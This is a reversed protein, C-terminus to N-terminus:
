NQEKENLSNLYQELAYEDPYLVKRAKSGEFPGVIGTAELQDIIRGARNYGISLKRQILSTSGQQHRVVLRAADEFNEDLKENPDVKATESDETDPEPLILASPYGQQSGIYETIDEIEPTDVFACQARVLNQGDNILMDGRGILQNAGTSDLITRSDISSSVRFSIRAPFNAKITGTIVNTSPRQTAIILHIGIARALQALRAIPGEIEKGATQILDAFEDVIVVIYPLYHHGKEPNLKRTIYKKNYEKINRAGAKKLLDYRMDMEKTLSNLTHIVKQTDTIIPEEEDPLKALFHRELKSYFSLEIKKPDVMVFKLQAPHKKYLLSTIIANLGVSKGQGTAGAILLHPMKALNFIMPDNNIKKGIVVPLEYKTNLYEPSTLVSRMSVIEPRRNPVEIGITGKGPIPAIIRIGLAALSLAIDDELNKIKSIRVGKAPVIEYLTVTPGVTASIRAIEINYDQLTNVIRDSNEKLDKESVETRDTQHDELLEVPPMKYNSLDLTPDYDGDNSIKVKENQKQEATMYSDDVELKIEDEEDDPNEPTESENQSTETDPNVSPRIVEPQISEIESDTKDTETELSHEDSQSSPSAPSEEPQSSKNDASQLDNDDEQLQGSNIHKIKKLLNKIIGLAPKYSFILIAFFSLLLLMITGAKGIFANLWQALFYGHAGGLYFMKDSFIFGLLVSVWIMGTLSLFLSKRLPFLRLKLLRFGIILFIFIFVFSALGFGNHIFSNSLTAGLKGIWNDVKISVDTFLETLPIDLKSQDEQWTFLYSTFSLALLIAFGIFFLGLTVKFREDKLPSRM